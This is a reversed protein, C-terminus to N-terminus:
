NGDKEDETAKLDLRRMLAAHEAMAKELEKTIMNCCHTCVGADVKAKNCEEHLTKQTAAASALHKNIVELSALAEKDDGVKKGVDELDRQAAAINKGLQESESKAVDPEVAAVDRSYIFLDRSYDRAHRMSRSARQNSWFPYKGPHQRRQPPTPRSQALVPSIETALMTAMLALCVTWMAVRSYSM